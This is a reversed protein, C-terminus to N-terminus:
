LSKKPIIVLSAFIGWTKVLFIEKHYNKL